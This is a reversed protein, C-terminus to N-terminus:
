MPLRGEAHRRPRSSPRTPRSRKARQDRARHTGPPTTRKPPLPQPPLAAPDRHRAPPDGGRAPSRDVHQGSTGAARLIEGPMAAAFEEGWRAWPLPEHDLLLLTRATNCQLRDAHVRPELHLVVREYGFRIGFDQLRGYGGRTQPLIDYLEDDYAAAAHGTSAWIAAERRRGRHDDDLVWWRAIADSLQVAAPQLRASSSTTSNARSTSCSERDHCQQSASSCRSRSPSDCSAATSIAPSGDDVPTPSVKPLSPPTTASTGASCCSRPAM